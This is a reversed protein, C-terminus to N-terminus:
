QVQESVRFGLGYVETNEGVEAIFVGGTWGLGGVGVGAGHDAAGHAGHEQRLGAELGGPRGGAGPAPFFLFM